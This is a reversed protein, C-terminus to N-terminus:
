EGAEESSPNTNEEDKYKILFNMVDENIEENAYMKKAIERIEMIADPHRELIGKYPEKSSIKEKLQYEMFLDYLGEVAFIIEKSEPDATFLAKIMNQKEEKTENGGRYGVVKAFALLKDQSDPDLLFRELVERIEKKIPKVHGLDEFM